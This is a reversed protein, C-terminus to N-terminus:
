QPTATSSTPSTSSGPGPSIDPSTSSGPGSRIAAIRRSSIQMRGTRVIHPTITILLETSDKERDQDTGQFGPLESLGPLGTLAKTETSSVLTALMATQGAPVTITSTLARNNLIPISNISSGALAEIKMDLALSVEDSHLIQPTMKLTIGLDEFQFQPVTVSSSGLYQSLLSSVSTGNINLGSLSSALTSSVGSSYTATVVPYRTGARFTAPQRNSSRIQTADLLRVDSSNL